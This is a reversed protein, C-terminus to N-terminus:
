RNPYEVNWLFLGEPPSTPGANRHDASLLLERFAAARTKIENWALPM